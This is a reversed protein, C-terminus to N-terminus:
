TSKKKQLVIRDRPGPRDTGYRSLKLDGNPLFEVAFKDTFHDPKGTIGHRYEVYIDIGIEVVNMRPPDHMESKNAIATKAPNWLPLTVQGKPQVPGFETTDMVRGIMFNQKESDITDYQADVTVKLDNIPFASQNTIVASAEDPHSIPKHPVELRVNPEVTALTLERTATVLNVTARWMAIAAAAAVVAAMVQAIEIALNPDM